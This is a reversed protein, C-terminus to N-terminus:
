KENNKIEKDAILKKFICIQRAIKDREQRILKPDSTYVFPSSVIKKPIKLCKEAKAILDTSLKLKRAKLILKELIIYYWHDEVGDRYNEVRITPWVRFDAGPVFLNGCENGTNLVPNWKTRPGSAQLAKRGKEKWRIASYYLFGDPKYKATMMGMLLRPTLPPEELMLTPHPPRPFNCVYWWVKKGQQRLQNVFSKHKVYKEVIPVWADIYQIAPDKMTIFQATSLLPREPTLEKLKKYLMAMLPGPTAEDFGYTYAYKYIGLKKAFPKWCKVHKELREIYKAIKPDDINDIRKPFTANVFCYSKLVGQQALKQLLPYTYSKNPKLNTYPGHYLFDLSIKYASAKNVLQEVMALYKKSGIRIDYAKAIDSLKFNYSTPLSSGNPLEFDYVKIKVPLSYKKQNSVFVDIKGTYIGPITGKPTYYRIWFPTTEEPQADLSNKGEMIFDPYYGTYDVFYEPQKTKAHGILASEASIKCGKPGLLPNAVVKINKVSTKGTVIVLQLSEYENVAMKLETQIAPKLNLAAEKLKVSEMSDAIGLAFNKCTNQSRVLEMSYNRSISAYAKRAAKVTAFFTQIDKYRNRNKSVNKLSRALRSLINKVRKDFKEPLKKAKLIRLKKLLPDAILEPNFQLEFNKLIVKFDKEPSTCGLSIRSISNRNFGTEYFSEAAQTTQGPIAMLPKWLKHQNMDRIMLGIKQSKDVGHVTYQCHTWCDFNGSNIGKGLGPFGNLGPWRDKGQQYKDFCLMVTGNKLPVIKGGIFRWSSNNRKLEEVFDLKRPFLMNQKSFKDKGRLVIDKFVLKTQQIPKTYCIQIYDISNLDIKQAADSLKVQLTGESHCRLTSRSIYYKGRSHMRVALTPSLLLQPNNLRVNLFDYKGLDAKKMDKLPIFLMPYKNNGKQYKSFIVELGDPTKRSTWGCRNKDISSPATPTNTKFDYIIKDASVTQTLVFLVFLISFIKRKLLKLLLTHM